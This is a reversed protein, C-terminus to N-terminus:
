TELTPASREVRIEGRELRDNLFESRSTRVRADQWVVRNRRRPIRGSEARCRGGVAAPSEGLHMVRQLATPAPSRCVYFRRVCHSVLKSTGSYVDRVLRLVPEHHASAFTEAASGFLNDRESFQGTLRGANPRPVLLKDISDDTDHDREDEDGDSHKKRIRFESQPPVARRRHQCPEEATGHRANRHSQEAGLRFPDDKATAGAFRGHRDSAVALSSCSKVVEDCV